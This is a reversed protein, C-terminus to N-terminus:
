VPEGNSRHATPRRNHRQGIQKYGYIILLVGFGLAAIVTGIGIVPSIQAERMFAMGRSVGMIVAFLGAASAIVVIISRYRSGIGAVGILGTALALIAIFAQQRYNPNDFASIIEFPPLLGLTLVIIIFARGVKAGSFGFGIIVAACVWMLRLLLTTSMSVTEGMVAPYLSTWEAFDVSNLSLAAGTNIVWPLAASLLLMLLAAISIYAM